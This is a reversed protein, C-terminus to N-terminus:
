SMIIGQVVDPDDRAIDRLAAQHVIALRVEIIVLRM